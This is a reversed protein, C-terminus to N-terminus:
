GTKPDEVFRNKKRNQAGSIPPKATGSKINSKTQSFTITASKPVPNAQSPPSIVMTCPSGLLKSKESSLSIIKFMM